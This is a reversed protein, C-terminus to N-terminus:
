SSCSVRAGGVWGATRGCSGERRRGDGAGGAGGGTGEGPGAARRGVRGDGLGMVCVAWLCRDRPSRGLRTGWRGGDGAGDMGVGWVWVCMRRGSRGWNERSGGGGGGVVDRTARRSDYDRAAGHGPGPAPARVPAPDPECDQQDWCSGALHSPDGGVGAGLFSFACM